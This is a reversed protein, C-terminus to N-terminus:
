CASGFSNGDLMLLSLVEADPEIANEGGGFLARDQGNAIITKIDRIGFENVGKSKSVCDDHGIVLFFVMGLLDLPEDLIMM